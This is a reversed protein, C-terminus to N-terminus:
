NKNSTMQFILMHAYATYGFVRLHKVDPKVGTWAEFPTMDEVAITPSRNRLYAATSLAEAWFKHPLKADALMSCVSENM